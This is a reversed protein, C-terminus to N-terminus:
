FRSYGNEHGSALPYFPSKPCGSPVTKPSVVCLSVVFFVHAPHVATISSAGACACGPIVGRGLCEGLGLKYTCTLLFFSGRRADKQWTGRSCLAPFLHTQWSLLLFHVLFHPFHLLLLTNHNLVM